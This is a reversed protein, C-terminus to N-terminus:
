DPLRLIPHRGAVQGFLIRDIDAPLVTLAEALEESTHGSAIAARVAEQRVALWQSPCSQTLDWLRHEADIARQVPDRTHAPSPSATVPVESSDNRGSVGPRM